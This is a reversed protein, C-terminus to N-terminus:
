GWCLPSQLGSSHLVRNLGKASNLKYIREDFSAKRSRVFVITSFQAPGLFIVICIFGFLFRTCVRKKAETYVSCWPCMYSTHIATSKTSPKEVVSSM